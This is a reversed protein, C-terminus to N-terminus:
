FCKKFFYKALILKFIVVLFKIILKHLLKFNTQFRSRNVIVYIFYINNILIQGPM